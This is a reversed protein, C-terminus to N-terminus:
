DRENPDIQVEIAAHQAVLPHGTAELLAEGLPFDRMSGLCTEQHSILRLVM